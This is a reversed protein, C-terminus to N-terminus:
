RRYNMELDSDTDSGSGLDDYLEIRPLRQRCTPCEMRMNMWQLLCKKHFKHNCPTQMYGKTLVIEVGAAVTGDPNVDCPLQKLQSLCIVCDMNKIEEETMERQASQNEADGSKIAVEQTLELPDDLIEHQNRKKNSKKKKQVVAKKFKIFYQHSGNFERIRRNRERIIRRVRRRMMRPLYRVPNKIAQVILIFIQLTISTVIIVVTSNHPQTMFINNPCGRMYAMLIDITLIKYVSILFLFVFFYYRSYCRMESNRMDQEVIFYSQQAKWVAVILKRQIVFHLIMNCVVPAWIMKSYNSFLQYSLILHIILSLINWISHVGLSILSINQANERQDQTIKVYEFVMAYILIITLGMYTMCYRFIKAKPNSFDVNYFEGKVPGPFCKNNTDANDLLMNIKYVKDNLQHEDNSSLILHFIHDKMDYQETIDQIQFSMNLSCDSAFLHLSIFKSKANNITLLSAEKVIGHYNHYGMTSHNVDLNMKNYPEYGLISTTEIQVYNDLYIYDQLILKIEFRTYVTNNNVHRTLSYSYKKEEFDYSVLNFLLTANGKTNEFYQNLATWGGKFPQQYQGHTTNLFPAIQSMKIMNERNMQQGIQMSKKIKQQQHEDEESSNIGDDEIEDNTLNFLDIPLQDEIKLTEHVYNNIVSNNSNNANQFTDEDFIQDTYLKEDEGIGETM